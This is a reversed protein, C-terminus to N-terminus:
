GVHVLLTEFMHHLSSLFIDQCAVDDLNHQRLTKMCFGTEGGKCEIAGQPMNIGTWIKKIELETIHDLYTRRRLNEDTKFVSLYFQAGDGPGSGSPRGLCLVREQFLLQKSIGLFPRFMQHENVKPTIIRTANRHGAADLDTVEQNNFAVAMYHMNNRTNM